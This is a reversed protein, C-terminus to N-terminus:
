ASVNDDTIIDFHGVGAARRCFTFLESVPKMLDAVDEHRASQLKVCTRRVAQMRDIRLCWGSAIWLDKKIAEIPQDDRKEALRSLAAPGLSKWVIADLIQFPCGTRGLKLALHHKPRRLVIVDSEVGFTQNSVIM